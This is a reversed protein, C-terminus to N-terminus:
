TQESAVDASSLLAQEYRAQEAFAAAYLRELEVLKTQNGGEESM